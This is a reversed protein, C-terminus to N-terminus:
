EMFIKYLFGMILELNNYHMPESQIYLTNQDLKLFQWYDGSTVVGYIFPIKSNHKQNFIQSAIMEAACQGWAIEIAGKKAEVIAAIPARLVFIDDSKSIIFDCLGKLGLKSDVDFNKGSFITIQKNAQNRIDALIPMVLLESRAKESLQALAWEHNQELFQKLMASPQLEKVGLLCDTWQLTNIKFQEVVKELTFKNYSM